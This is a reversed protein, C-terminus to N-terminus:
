PRVVRRMCLTITLSTTGDGATVAPRVYRPLELAQEIKTSGFTLANGQPDSLSAWTAGDNSGQITCSGGSGFTGTVQFCRDAFDVWEAPAGDDGNALGAWTILRVNDSPGIYTMTSNITTM